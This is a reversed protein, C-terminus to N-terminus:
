EIKTIEKFLMIGIHGGTLEIKTNEMILMIGIHGVTLQIKPLAIVLINGVYGGTLEIKAMEKKPHNCYPQRNIRMQCIEIILM